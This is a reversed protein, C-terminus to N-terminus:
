TANSIIAIVESQCVGKTSPCVFQILQLYRITTTIRMLVRSVTGIFDNSSSHLDQVWESHIEGGPTQTMMQLVLSLPQQFVTHVAALVGVSPFAQHHGAPRGDNRHQIWRFLSIAFTAQSDRHKNQQVLVQALLGRIPPVVDRIKM